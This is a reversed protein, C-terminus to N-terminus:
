LIICNLLVDIYYWYLILVVKIGIYYWFRYLVWVNLVVDILYLVM